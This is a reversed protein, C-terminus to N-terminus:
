IPLSIARSEAWAGPPGRACREGNLGHFGAFDKEAFSKQVGPLQLQRPRGLGVAQPEILRGDVQPEEGLLLGQPRKPSSTPRSYMSRASASTSKDSSSSKGKRNM